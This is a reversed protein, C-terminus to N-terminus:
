AAMLYSTAQRFLGQNVFIDRAPGTIPRAKRDKGLKTKGHYYLGKVIKEQLVNFTKWLDDGYDADRVPELLNDLEEETAKVEEAEQDLRLALANLAFDRKQELTLVKDKMKNRIEIYEEVKKLSAAITLRLEEFSYNIHRISVSEFQETALILGNSCVLRFIGVMFKFSNFGDHSNTLIIQPYAEVEGNDLTISYEPNQFAVMHFSRVTSNKNARQQRCQVVGWGEKAMDDIVDETTYPVYRKSTGPNTTGRTFIYPAKARMEDKTMFTHLDANNFTLM